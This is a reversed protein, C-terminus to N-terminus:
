ANICRYENMNNKNLNSTIFKTYRNESISLYIEDLNPEVHKKDPPNWIKWSNDIYTNAFSYDNKEEWGFNKIMYKGTEKLITRATYLTRIESDLSYFRLCAKSFFEKNSKFSSNLTQQVSNIFELLGNLISDEGELSDKKSLKKWIEIIEKINEKNIQNKNKEITLLSELKDSIPLFELTEGLKHHVNTLGGFDCAPHRFTNNEHKYGFDVGGPQENGIHHMKLKDKTQKRVLDSRFQINQVLDSWYKEVSKNFFDVMIIIKQRCVITPKDNKPIINKYFSLNSNGRLTLHSEVHQLIHKEWKHYEDSNNNEAKVKAEEAEKEAKAKAEVKENERLKSHQYQLDITKKRTDRAKIIQEELSLNNEGSAGGIIYYLYNKLLYKGKISKLKYINGNIPNKIKNYMYMYM